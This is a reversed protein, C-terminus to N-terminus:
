FTISILLSLVSKSCTVYKLRMEHNYSLCSWIFKSRYSHSFAIYLWLAINCLVIGCLAVYSWLLDCTIMYPWRFSYLVVCHWILSCVAIWYWATGWFIISQWWQKKIFKVKVWLFMKQERHMNKTGQVRKTGNPVNKVWTEVTEVGLLVVDVFSRKPGKLTARPWFNSINLCNCQFRETKTCNM